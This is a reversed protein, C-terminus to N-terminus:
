RGAKAPRTTPKPKQENLTWDYELYSVSYKKQRLFDGDEKPLHAASFNLVAREADSRGEVGEAPKYTKVFDGGFWEFIKSLHVQGAQRDIRFRRPHALFRVTQDRLQADLKKGTYPENRLPPCSMAACVLAVHIRPENFRARLQKHEIDNLTMKQGLVLFQLKDWVGPIQRISNKPYIRSKWFGGKIPYNDIIAKLTLANYANSWFAIKTKEDWKEYAEGKLGALLRAFRDLDARDAKLAAYNVMGKDDVHKKLASAYPAYTLKAAQANGAQYFDADFRSPGGLFESYALWGLVIAILLVVAGGSCLIKKALTM